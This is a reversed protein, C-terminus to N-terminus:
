EIDYIQKEWYQGDRVIQIINIDYFSTKIGTVGKEYKVLTKIMHTYVLKGNIVKADHRCESFQERTILIFKKDPINEMSYTIVNGEDDHYLKFELPIM